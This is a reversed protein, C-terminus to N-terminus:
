AITLLYEQLSEADAAERLKKLCSKALQQVRTKSLGMADACEQISRTQGDVLGYRLRMLRAERADLNNALTAVVDAHFQTREALDVDFMFAKDQQLATETQTEAGSRSSTKYEYDLSLVQQAQTMRRTTIAVEELSMAARNSVEARTPERGLEQALAEHAQRIRNWKTKERQPLTIPEKLHSNGLIGKIWITAYTSFRLGRNPDFLEAARLLGLSGEQVMEEYSVGGRTGVNKVVAHVLGMNSEVLQQKASRYESVDRRLEKASDLGASQIWEQRTIERGHQAEFNTKVNHLEVGKQIQRGLAVEEEPTVRVRRTSFTKKKNPRQQQSAGLASVAPKPLQQPFNSMAVKEIHTADELYSDLFLDPKLSAGDIQRQLDSPVVESGLSRQLDQFDDLDDSDIDEDGLFEDTWSFATDRDHRYIPAPVVVVRDVGATKTRTATAASLANTTSPFAIVLACLLAPLSYSAFSKHLPMARELKEDQHQSHHHM